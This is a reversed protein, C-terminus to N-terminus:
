QFHPLVEHGALDLTAFLEDPPMGGMDCMFLYTDLDLTERYLEMREIVEAPSGCVTPGRTTLVDFDFPPVFGAMRPTSLSILDRVWDMYGHM